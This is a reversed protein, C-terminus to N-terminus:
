KNIQPNTKELITLGNCNTFRKKLIWDNNNELFEEVAPWLGKEIEEIPFGTDISQQKTDMNFRISEGLEGDLTTDHLIIYKLAIPSFKILERKLQGYVHWTDIFVLDFKESIQLDLNDKWEFSLKINIKEAIENIESIDCENIDNLFIKKSSQNSKNLGYLFAWSSVVGRVGTEFITRSKEGYVSLTELHEYIDSKKTKLVKYKFELYELPDNRSNKLKFKYYNLKTESIPNKLFEKLKWTLYKGFSGNKIKIILENIM